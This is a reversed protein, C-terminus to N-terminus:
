KSARAERGSYEGLKFPATQIANFATRFARLSYAIDDMARHKPGGGDLLGPVGLDKLPYVWSSVDLNRRNLPKISLPMHVQMWGRDFQISNGCLPSKWPSGQETLCEFCNWQKLYAVLAKDVEEVSPPVTDGELLDKLLGSTRHMNQVYPDWTSPDSTPCVLSHFTDLPVFEPSTIIVAVELICSGEGTPIIANKGGTELDLWAYNGADPQTLVM